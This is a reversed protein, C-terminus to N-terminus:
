AYEIIRQIIKERMENVAKFDMAPIYFDELKDHALKAKHIQEISKNLLEHFMKEDYELEERYKEIIQEDALSDLNIICSSSKMFKEKTTIAINLDPIVIDEILSPAFPSHFIEVDYGLSIAKKATNELLIEWGTGWNGKIYTINNICEFDFVTDQHDIIGSPTIGRSFLHRSSGIRNRADAYKFTNKLLNEHIRSFQHDNMSEKYIKEIDQIFPNLTSLYKYARTFCIGVEKNASMIAEKNKVLLDTNLYDGLNIIEDFVGPNKPDVMHPSTGDLFAVGLEKIVLADLSNDSSSCYFEEISYGKESMKVSIKKMFTSKGVGPGGKLIFLRNAKPNIIYDFYSYFGQTTNGGPWLKKCKKNQM